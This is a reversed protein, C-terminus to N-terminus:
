RKSNYIPSTKATTKKILKMTTKCNRCSTRHKDPLGFSLLAALLVFVASWWLCGTLGQAQYVWGSLVTGLLRGGANAMYYFGVNMSVKDHESWAVILYSHIASNIAFVIGFIILGSILVPKTHLELTLSTAILAPLLTLVFAWHRASAGNPTHGQKSFRRIIKPANAQVVGYGIVWLALFGGVQEFNWQFTSYLYVPLAVVFWVDRSAFLFFRAASLYNIAPTKSFVQSFKAKNKTRGLGAPLLIMSIILTFLLASALIILAGRFELLNLLLAGIFFGAGKLANKSGTLM